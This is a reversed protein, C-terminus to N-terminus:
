SESKQYGVQYYPLIEQAPGELTTQLCKLTFSSAEVPGCENWLNVLNVMAPEKSRIVDAEACEDAMRGQDEKM